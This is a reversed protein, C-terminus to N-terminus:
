RQFPLELTSYMRKLNVPLLGGKNLKLSSNLENYFSRTILLNSFSKSEYASISEFTYESLSKQLLGVTKPSLTTARPNSCFRLIRVLMGLQNPNKSFKVHLYGNFMDDLYNDDFILKRSGWCYLVGDWNTITTKLLSDINEYEQHGQEFAWTKSVKWIDLPWGGVNVRYGGFKNVEPKHNRVVSQFSEEQSAVVVDIDSDFGKIGNLAIDRIVGGFIYVPSVKDLEDLFDCLVVRDKRNEDFFRAVRKKLHSKKRAVTVM